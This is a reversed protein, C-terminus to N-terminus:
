IFQKGVVYIIISLIMGLIGGVFVELPTHRKLKLRSWVVLLVPLYGAFYILEHHILIMSTVFVTITAVHMSVKIYNNVIEVIFLGFILGFTFIFLVKPAQLTLLTFLYIVSLLITFFYLFPRQKRDSIDFDSFFKLKVGIAIFIFFMFIFLSSILTWFAGSSIENTTEYILYFPLPFLIVLPDLIFSIIDAFLKSV